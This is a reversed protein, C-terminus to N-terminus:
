PEFEHLIVITPYKNLYKARLPVVFNILNPVLGCLIIHDIALINKELTKFTVDKLNIKEKSIYCKEAIRSWEGSQINKFSEQKLNIQFKEEEDEDNSM